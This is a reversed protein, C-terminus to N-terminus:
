AEAPSADQEAKKQAVLNEFHVRKKEIDNIIMQALEEPNENVKFTAGMSDNLTETLIEVTKSSGGIPPMIGLYTDIGSGVVYTGIAVAKESMWEPAVGAVPIDCMDMDLYKAVDAVVNLIRSCDVCSGLHLVPPIDALECVTALGKSAMNKAEKNLLGFKGAASAGCGTTVVLIDNKILEKMITVHAKNSVSRANNCGVVGVVGRLVGSKLCDVLPKVTGPKDIQSNVVRDLQGIIAQESFGVTTSSKLEPIYVKERDRNKFNLIAERVIKKADNFATEENFEIYTSGSIKAKPSTTIFKTHYCESVKALAPFICQVDVIMAEVAGTIIALEQQHFDGATRLGHRMTVENGTCCMGALNIGESGVEKALAVLEPDESALVVMESLSPEHGHLIINVKNDELVGLNAESQRITPTGFLIDSFITGIMSGGWGDAFSTRLSLNILSDID